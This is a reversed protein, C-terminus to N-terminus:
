ATQAVGSGTNAMTPRRINNPCECPTWGEALLYRNVMGHHTRHRGRGARGFQQRAPEAGGRVHPGECPLPEPGAQNHEDPRLQQHIGFLQDQQPVGEPM